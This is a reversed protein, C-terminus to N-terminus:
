ASRKYGLVVGHRNRYGGTKRAAWARGTKNGGNQRQEDKRASREIGLVLIRKDRLDIADFDMLAVEDDGLILCTL